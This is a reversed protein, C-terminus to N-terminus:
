IRELSNGCDQCRYENATLLHYKDSDPDRVNEYVDERGEIPKRYVRFKEVQCHKCWVICSLELGTIDLSM